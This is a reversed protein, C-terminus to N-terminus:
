HIQGKISPNSFFPTESWKWSPGRTIINNAWGERHWQNKFVKLCAGVPPDTGKLEKERVLQTASTKLIELVLASLSCPSDASAM